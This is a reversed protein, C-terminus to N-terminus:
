ANHQGDPRGYALRGTETLKGERMDRALAAPQRLAPDGLGGGGQTLITLRDGSKLRYGMTKGPLEIVAGDRELLIKATAGPLGGNLGPPPLKVHDFQSSFVCDAMLEFARVAGLGGRYQGPGGSDPRLGYALVRIPFENEVMEVPNNALNHIGASLCDPGDKGPRGGWGGVEIEFQVNARGNEYASFVYVNSNGYYPAVAREPLAKGLAMM